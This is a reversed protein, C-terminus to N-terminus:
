PFLAQWEAVHCDKGGSALLSGDGSFAVCNVSSQHHKLVALHKARKLHLVRVRSDWSAVAVVRGDPRCRVEGTGKGRGPTASAAVFRNSQTHSALDLEFACLEDPAGGALGHFVGPSTEVADLATGVGQQTQMALAPIPRNATIDFVRAFGDEYLACVTSENLLKTHMLMGWAPEAEHRFVTGAGSRPRHVALVNENTCCAVLPGPSSFLVSCRCFGQSNTDLSWAEALGPSALDRASIAGSRAQCVLLSSSAHVSLVGGASLPLSTRVRKITRDLVLLAGAADGSVLLSTAPIYCLASVAHTHARYISAPPPPQM